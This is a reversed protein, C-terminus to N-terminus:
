FIIAERGLGRSWGASLGLARGGLSARVAFAFSAAEARTAVAARFPLAGGRQMDIPMTM